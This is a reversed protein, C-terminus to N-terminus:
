DVRRRLVSRVSLREIAAKNELCIAMIDRLTPEPDDLPVLASAAHGTLGLSPQVPADGISLTPSPPGSSSPSHGATSDSGRTAHTLLSALSAKLNLFRTRHSIPHGPKIYDSPYTSVSRRVGPIAIPPM